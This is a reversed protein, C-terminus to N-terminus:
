RSRLRQAQERIEEPVLELLQDPRMPLDLLSLKVRNRRAHTAADFRVLNVADQHLRVGLGAGPLLDRTHVGDLLVRATEGSRNTLTVADDVGFVVTRDIGTMPAVATLALAPVSPSLVPGGAAYNYATSGTPTCAVVADCRYYGYQVGHVALDVNVTAWQRTGTVVADNFAAAGDVMLCSHPELLFDGRTLRDLAVPLEAPSVEVLFGLNGHNVGFVPTPRGVVLRMAGLMTGDGGLSVVATAREAFEAATVPHVDAGLRAADAEPAILTAGRTAAFERILTVSGAVPNRPHAVLGITHTHGSESGM